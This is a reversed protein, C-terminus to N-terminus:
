AIDLSFARPSMASAEWPAGAPNVGVVEMTRRSMPGSSFCWTTKPLKGWDAEERWRCM